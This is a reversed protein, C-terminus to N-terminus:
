PGRRLASRKPASPARVGKGRGLWHRREEESFREIAYRLATRPMEEAHVDLFGELSAKGVRKGVERLMWGVAKHMLDERDDLLMRAITLAPEAEGEKIWAYTSVMAIRREWLMPSRALELLPSPAGARVHRGLIQWASADVLDWNNVAAFHASYFAAADSKEQDNGRGYRDVLVLLATLREEHWASALLAELGRYPLARARTAIARQEPVTVGLFRDGAGYMGPGTKFFTQSVRARDDSACARLAEQVSTVSNLETAM